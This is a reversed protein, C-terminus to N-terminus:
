LLKLSFHSGVAMPDDVALTYVVALPSGVVRACGFHLWGGVALPNCVKFSSGVLLPSGGALQYGM